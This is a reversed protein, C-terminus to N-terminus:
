RLGKLTARIAPLTPIAARALAELQAELVRERATDRGWEVTMRHLIVADSLAGLSEQAEVIAKADEKQWELAYRVPRLKRRVLHLEAPHAAKEDV